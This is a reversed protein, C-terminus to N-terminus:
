GASVTNTGLMFTYPVALCAKSSASNTVRKARTWIDLTQGRFKRPETQTGAGFPRVHPLGGAPRFIVYMAAAKFEVQYTTGPPYGTLTVTPGNVTYTNPTEVLRTAPNYVTVAGSAAITTNVQFPIVTNGGVVLYAGYRADADIELLLDDTSCGGWAAIPNGNPDAYPITIAPESSTIQGFRTDMVVGPEDPTPSMHTFTVLATFPNSPSDWYTGIGFCTECGPEPSGPVPLGDQGASSFVCPCTHSKQWVLRSGAKGILSDFAQHPLMTAFPPFWRAMM